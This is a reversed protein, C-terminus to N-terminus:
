RDSLADRVVFGAPVQFSAAAPEVRKLDKFELKTLGKVPDDIITTLALRLEPSYWSDITTVLEKSNGDVGAPLTRTAKSGRTWVGMLTQPPLEEARYVLRSASEPGLYVDMGEAGPMRSPRQPLPEAFHQVTATKGCTCWTTGTRTAPDYVRVMTREPQDKRLPDREPTWRSITRGQEDRGEFSTRQKEIETGDALKQFTTVVRTATYPEGSVVAPAPRLASQGLAGAVAFVLLLGARTIVRGMAGGLVAGVLACGIGFSM